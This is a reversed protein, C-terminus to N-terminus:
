SRKIKSLLKPSFGTHKKFFRSFYFENNFKLEKAVENVKMDGSALMTYARHLICKTLFQKPSIGNERIFNRSFTDRCVGCIDALEAITTMATCTESLRNLEMYTFNLHIGLNLDNIDSLEFIRSVFDYAISLLRTSMLFPDETDFANNARELFSPDKFTLIKKISSFVDNWNHLDLLFQISIFHMNETLRVQVKHNMPIFYVSGPQLTFHSKHDEIYSEEPDPGGIPILCRNVMLHNYGNEKIPYTGRAYHYIHLRFRNTDQLFYNKSSVAM